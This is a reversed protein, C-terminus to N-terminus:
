MPQEVHHLEVAPAASGRSSRLLWASLLVLATMVADLILQPPPFATLSQGAGLFEPDIWAVGPFFVAAAQTWFYAGALLPGAPTNAGRDGTRRWLFFLTLIALLSGTAITQANHFRAHPPWAPNFMHTENWDAAVSGIAAFVAIASLLLRGGTERTM